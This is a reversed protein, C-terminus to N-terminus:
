PVHPHKQIEQHIGHYVSACLTLRLSHLLMPLAHCSHGEMVVLFFVGLSESDNGELLAEWVM